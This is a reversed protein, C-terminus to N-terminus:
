TLIEVDYDRTHEHVKVLNLVEYLSITARSIEHSTQVM